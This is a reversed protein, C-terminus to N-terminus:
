DWRRLCLARHQERTSVQHFALSKSFYQEGNFIPGRLVATTQFPIRSVSTPTPGEVHLSTEAVCKFTLRLLQTITENYIYM